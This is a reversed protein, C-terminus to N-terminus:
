NGHDHHLKESPLNMNAYKNSYMEKETNGGVIMHTILM